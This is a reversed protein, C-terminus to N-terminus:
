IPHDLGCPDEIWEILNKIDSLGCADSSLYRMALDKLMGDIDPHRAIGAKLEDDRIGSDSSGDRGAFLGDLKRILRERENM